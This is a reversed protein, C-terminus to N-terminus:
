SSFELRNLSSPIAADPQLNIATLFFLSKVLLRGASNIRRLASEAAAASLLSPNNTLSFLRHLPRSCHM